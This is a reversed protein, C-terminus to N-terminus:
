TGAAAKRAFFREGWVLSGIGVLVNAACAGAFIGDLGWLYSGLYALPVYLAFMRVLTIATSYLARNVANFASSVLTSVGQFGLSWSVIRLYGVTPGVVQPDHAFVRAIWPAALFLALSAGLGWLFSFRLSVRLGQRAREPKGAGWNQGVFPVLSASLAVVVIMVLTEIRGAVALAAVAKPSYTAVLGTILLMSLPFVIRTMAAPLAVSGIRRGSDLLDALRPYTAALMGDRWALVALLMILMVAQSLVSAWAAGALGLRPFIGWGFILLPDFLANLVAAVLLALSPFRADGTARLANSGIMPLLLLPLGGYWVTMYQRIMPLVDETAGLLRFLPNLTLGGLGALSLSLLLAMWFADTAVRRVREPRGEGITRAVVSATGVGLGMILSNLVMSVPFSFGYAGLERGGLRGICYADIASSLSSAAIGLILPLTLQTLAPGIEGELLSIRGKSPRAATLFRSIQSISPAPGDM